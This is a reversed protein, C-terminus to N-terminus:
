SGHMLERLQTENRQESYDELLKIVIPKTAGTPSTLSQEHLMRGVKGFMECISQARVTREVDKDEDWGEILGAEECVETMPYGTIVALQGRLWFVPKPGSGDEEFMSRISPDERRDTALQWLLGAWLSDLDRDGPADGSVITRTLFGMLVEREAALGMKERAGPVELQTRYRAGLRAPPDSDCWRGIGRWSPAACDLEAILFRHVLPLIRAYGRQVAESRMLALWADATSRMSTLRPAEYANREFLSAVRKIEANVLEGNAIQPAYSPPLSSQAEIFTLSISSNTV